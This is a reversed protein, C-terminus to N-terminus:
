YTREEEKDHQPTDRLEVISERMAESIDYTRLPCKVSEPWCTVKSGDQDSIKWVANFQEKGTENLLYSFDM